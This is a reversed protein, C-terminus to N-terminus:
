TFGSYHSVHEAISSSTIHTPTRALVLGYVSRAGSQRLALAIDHLTSGTTLVDDVVVVCRGAVQNSVCQFRRGMQAMRDRRGLGKVSVGDPNRSLIDLRSRLGLQRGAHRALEAAPNFGRVRLAQPSSPVPVLITYQGLAESPLDVRSVLVKALPQALLYQRGFKLRQVLLNGPFQYDFAVSVREFAPTLADCDVCRGQANLRLGCRKCRAGQAVMSACVDAVCGACFAGGSVRAMCLPCNSALAAMLRDRCERWRLRHAM